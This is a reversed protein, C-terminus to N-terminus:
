AQRQSIVLTFSPGGKGRRQQDVVLRVIKPKDDEIVNLRVLADGVAKFSGALNDEDLEAGHCTRSYVITVPGAFSPLQGRSVLMLEIDKTLKHRRSWHMKDCANRSPPEFGGVSIVLAGTLAVGVAVDLKPKPKVKRPKVRDGSKWSPGSM